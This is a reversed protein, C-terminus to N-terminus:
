AKDGKEQFFFVVIVNLNWINLKDLHHKNLCKGGAASIDHQDFHATSVPSCDKRLWGMEGGVGNVTTNQHVILNMRSSPIRDWIHFIRNTAAINDSFVLQICLSYM